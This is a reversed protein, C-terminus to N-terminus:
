TYKPLLLVVARYSSVSAIDSIPSTHAPLWDTQLVDESPVKMDLLLKLQGNVTFPWYCQGRPTLGEVETMHVGPPYAFVFKPTHPLV